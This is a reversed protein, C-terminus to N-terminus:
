RFKFIPKFERDIEERTKNGFKVPADKMWPIYEWKWLRHNADHEAMAHNSTNIFIVPHNHDIFCYKIIREPAPRPDGHISDDELQHEDSYIDEFIFKNDTIDKRVIINFTKVDLTRGHYLRRFGEYIKNLNGGCAHKRLQENNFIISVEVEYSGDTKEPKQACHVERVFNDLSDVAPQYIAPIIKDAPIGM